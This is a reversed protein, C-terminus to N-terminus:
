GGGSLDLHPFADCNQEITIQVTSNEPLDELKQKPRLVGNEYVAEISQTKPM